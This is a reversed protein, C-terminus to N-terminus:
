TPARSVAARSSSGASASNSPSAKRSASFVPEDPTNSPGASRSQYAPSSEAANIMRRSIRRGRASAASATPAVSPTAPAASCPM